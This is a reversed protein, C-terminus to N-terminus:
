EVVEMVTGTAMEMIKEETADARDLEGAFHGERIVVIRDSMGLIEPLESSIMVVAVGEAAMTRLLNYIEIKALRNKFDGSLVLEDRVPNNLRLNMDGSPDNIGAPADRVCRVSFLWDKEWTYTQLEANDYSLLRHIAQASSTETSSWFFAYEHLFFSSYVGNM